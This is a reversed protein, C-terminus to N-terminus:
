GRWRVLFRHVGGDKTSVVKEDLIADISEKHAHPLNLPLPTPIPADIHNPWSEDFPSDPITIPSKYAVLDEINFSSSIGYDHPLDIVYANPGIRKLVKFPRASCAQLKKVTGSPFQEPRIRIMVYDGVQFEAHRRHTDAHIKYQSNSAQINKRIENHLDHVHQAFAEASKSIRVHLSMPLLDLPKRTTYGHVVEFPSTGISRNVPSNYELQAVPLISDWYRNAEVVLCRFLNGLSRNVVKTQGDTQPHFAMSFKLKTGVLHWLTKWFYSM